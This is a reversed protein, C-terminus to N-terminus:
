SDKKVHQCYGIRFTTKISKRYSNNFQNCKRKNWEKVM